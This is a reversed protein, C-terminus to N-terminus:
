RAGKGAPTGAVTFIKWAPLEFRIANGEVALEREMRDDLRVKGARAWPFHWRTGVSRDEGTGYFRARMQGGSVHLGSLIVGPTTQLYAREFPLPVRASTMKHVLLEQQFEHARRLVDGTRWDGEHPYLAYRYHHVGRLPPLGDSIHLEVNGGEFRVGPVGDVFVAVGSSAYAIDVFDLTVQEQREVCYVGFPQNVWHAGGDRFPFVIRLSTEPLGRFGFIAGEGYDIELEIELWPSDHALLLSTRYPCSALKGRIALRQFVPNSAEVTVTTRLNSDIQPLGCVFRSREGERLLERGRAKDFLSVLSGTSADIEARLYRNELRNPTAPPPTGASEKKPAIAYARCGLSPVSARFAILADEGSESHRRDLIAVPIESEGTSAVLSRAGAPMEVRCRVEGSREWNLPNFVVFQPTETRSQSGESACLYALSADLESQAIRAASDKWRRNTTEVTVPFRPGPYDAMGAELLGGVTYGEPADPGGTGYSFHDQSSLLNKWANELSEVPYARGAWMAITSFNEAAVLFRELRRDERCAANLSGFGTWFAPVGLLDDAGMFIPEPKSRTQELYEPYTAQIAQVPVISNLADYEREGYVYGTADSSGGALVSHLGAREAAVLVEPMRSIGGLISYLQNLAVTKYTPVAPISTGDLGQWLIQERDIGKIEGPGGCRLVAFEIGFGKLIQPLQPHFAFDDYACMYTRVRGGMRKLAQLGFQFQRINSETGLIELYADSYMGKVTEVLGAASAKKWRDLDTLSRNAIIEWTQGPVENIQKHGFQEAVRLREEVWRMTSSPWGWEAYGVPEGDVVQDSILGGHWGRVFFPQVSTLSKRCELLESAAQRYLAKGTEMDGHLVRSASKSVLEDARDLRDGVASRVEQSLSSGKLEMLQLVFKRGFGYGYFHRRWELYLKSFPTLIPEAGLSSRVLNILIGTADADYDKFEPHREYRLLERFLNSTILASRERILIDPSGSAFCTIKQATVPEVEMHWEYTLHSSVNHGRSRALAGAIPHGISVSYRPTEYDWKRHRVGFRSEFEESLPSGLFAPQVAVVGHAGKIAELFRNGIGGEESLRDGLIVLDTTQSTQVANVRPIAVALIYPDWLRWGIYDFVALSSCILTISVHRSVNEAPAARALLPAAVAAKLLERRNLKESMGNEQSPYVKPQM